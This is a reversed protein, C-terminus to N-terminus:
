KPESYSSRNPTIEERLIAPEEEIVAMPEEHAQAASSRGTDRQKSLLRGELLPDKGPGEGSKLDDESFKWHSEFDVKSDDQAHKRVDEAIKQIAKYDSAISLPLNRVQSTAEQLQWLLKKTLPQSIVYFDGSQIYYLDFTRFVRFDFLKKPLISHGGDCEEYKIVEVFDEVNEGDYLDDRRPYINTAEPSARYASLAKSQERSSDNLELSSNSLILQVTDVKSRNRKTIVSLLQWSNQSDSRESLIKATETRYWPDLKSFRDWVKSASRKGPRVYGALLSEDLPICFPAVIPSISWLEYQRAGHSSGLINASESKRSRLRNKMSSLFSRSSGSSHEDAELKPPTIPEDALPGAALVTAIQDSPISANLLRQRLAAEQERREEEARKKTAEYEAIAAEAIEKRRAEEEAKVEAERARKIEDEERRIRDEEDQVLKRQYAVYAEWREPDDQERTYPPPRKQYQVAEKYREEAWQVNKYSGAIRSRSREREEKTEAMWARQVDFLLSLSAKLRDLERQPEELQRKTWFAWRAASFCDVDIQERSINDPDLPDRGKQIAVRIDWFTRRCRERLDTAQLVGRGPTLRNQKALSGLQQLAIATLSVEDKISNIHDAASRYDGIVTVLTQALNLGLQAVALIAAAEGIGAM